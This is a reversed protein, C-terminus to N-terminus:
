NLRFKAILECQTATDLHKVQEAVLPNPHRKMFDVLAKKCTGLSSIYSSCQSNPCQPILTLVKESALQLYKLEYENDGNKRWFRALNHCSVLNITLVDDIDYSEEEQEIMQESISLAQQYHIISRLHDQEKMAIDALLTHEEWKQISM